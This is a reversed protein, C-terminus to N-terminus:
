YFYFMLEYELECHINEVLELYTSRIQTDGMLVQYREPDADFLGALFLIMALRQRTVGATNRVLMQQVGIENMLDPIAGTYKTFWICAELVSEQADNCLYCLRPASQELITLSLGLAQNILATPRIHAICCTRLILRSWGALLELESTLIPSAVYLNLEYIPAVLMEVLGTQADHDCTDIIHVSLDELDRLLGDVDTGSLEILAGSTVTTM